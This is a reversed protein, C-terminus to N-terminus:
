KETMLNAIKIQFNWVIYISLSVIYQLSLFDYNKFGARNLTRTELKSWTTWTLKKKFFDFRHRKLKFFFCFDIPQLRTKSRIKGPWGPWVSNKREKNKRWSLGTEAGSWGAPGFKLVIFFLMYLFLGYVPLFSVHLIIMQGLYTEM